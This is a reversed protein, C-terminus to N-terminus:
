VSRQTMYELRNIKNARLHTTAQQRTPRVRCRTPCGDSECHAAARQPQFLILVDVRAQEIPRRQKMEGEM